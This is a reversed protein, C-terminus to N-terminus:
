DGLGKIGWDGLGGILFLSFYCSIIKLLSSITLTFMVFVSLYLFEATGKKCLSSFLCSCSLVSIDGCSSDYSLKIQTVQLCHVKVQTSALQVWTGDSNIFGRTTTTTTKTGRTQYPVELINLYM